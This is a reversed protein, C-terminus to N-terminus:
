PTDGEFTSDPRLKVGLDSPMHLQSEIIAQGSPRPGRIARSNTTRSVTTASTVEIVCGKVARHELGPSQDKVGSDAFPLLGKRGTRLIGVLDNIYEIKSITQVCLRTSHIPRWASM